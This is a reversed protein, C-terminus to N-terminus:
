FDNRYEVGLRKMQADLTQYNRIGLMRAAKSKNGAARDMAKHLYKQRISNLHDELDFGGAPITISDGKRLTLSPSGALAEQIDSKEIKKGKSM